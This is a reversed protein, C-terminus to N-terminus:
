ATVAQLVKLTVTNTGVFTTSSLRLGAIPSLITIFSGDPSLASSFHTTSIAAWVVTTGLQQASQFDDLTGQITVDINSSGTTVLTLQCITTKSVPNLGIGTSVGASSIQTLVAM